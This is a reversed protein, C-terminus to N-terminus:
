GDMHEGDKLSLGEQFDIIVMDAGIKKIHEWPVRIESGNRLLGFWKVSPIILSTIQGTEDIELDTQGLIGLREARNVDVIEKGSLESLRM